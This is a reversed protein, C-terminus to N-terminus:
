LWENLFDFTSKSKIKEKISNIKGLVEAAKEEEGILKYSAYMLADIKIQSNPTGCELMSYRNVFVRAFSDNKLTGESKEKVANRLRPTYLEVVKYLHRNNGFRIIQLYEPQINLTQVALIKSLSVIVKGGEKGQQSLLIGEVGDFAGGIIRVEDGAELNVEEPKVYPIEGDRYFSIAKRFMQMEADRIRVPIPNSLSDLASRRQHMIMLRYATNAMVWNRLDDYNDTAVFVMNLVLSREVRVKHGERGVMTFTTPLFYEFGKEDLEKRISISLYPSKLVYWVKTSDSCGDKKEM